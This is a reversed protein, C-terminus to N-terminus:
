RGAAYARVRYIRIEHSDTTLQRGQNSQDGNLRVVTKWGAGDREVQEISAIGAVKADTDPDRTIHVTLGMGAVLFEDHAAELLLMAGDNAQLANSRWERNLSAQFLYGGLV